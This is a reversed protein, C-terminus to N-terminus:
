VHTEEKVPHGAYNLIVFAETAADRVKSSLRCVLKARECAATPDDYKLDILATQAHLMADQAKDAALELAAVIMAKQKPSMNAERKTIYFM